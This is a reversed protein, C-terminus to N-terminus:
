RLEPLVIEVEDAVLEFDKTNFTLVKAGLAAAQGALMIDTSRAHAPRQTAVRAVLRAYSDAAVQDFPLWDSQLLETVAALEHQRERRIRPSQTREIGFRLEAYSLASLAVNEAAPLAVQEIRILVNTDLLIM